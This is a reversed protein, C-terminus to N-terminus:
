MAKWSVNENEKVGYYKQVLFDLLFLGQLTGISPFTLNVGNSCVRDTEYELAGLLAEIWNLGKFTLVFALFGSRLFVDLLVYKCSGEMQHCMLEQHHRQVNEKWHANVVALWAAQRSFIEVNGRSWRAAKSISTEDQLTVCMCTNCLAVVSWESWIQLLPHWSWKRLCRCNEVNM